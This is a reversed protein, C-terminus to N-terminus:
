AQGRERVLRCAAPQACRRKRKQERSTAADPLACKNGPRDEWRRPSRAPGPRNRLAACGSRAFTRLARSGEPISYGDAPPWHFPRKRCRLKTGRASIRTVERGYGTAQLGDGASRASATSSLDPGVVFSSKCPLSKLLFPRPSLIQVKSRRTGFRPRLFDLENFRHQIATCVEEKKPSRRPSRTRSQTLLNSAM